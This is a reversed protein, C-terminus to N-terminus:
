GGSKGKGKRRPLRRYGLKERKKKKLSDDLSLSREM